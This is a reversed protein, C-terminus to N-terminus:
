YWFSFDQMSGRLKTEPEYDAIPGGLVTTQLATELRLTSEVQTALADADLRTRAWVNVQMRTNRKGPVGGDVFNVPLGGVQQYTIYPLQTGEPAVDPFARGDALPSLTNQLVSLLSM